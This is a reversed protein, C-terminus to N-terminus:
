DQEIIEFDLPFFKNEKLESLDLDISKQKRLLSMNKDREGNLQFKLDFIKKKL